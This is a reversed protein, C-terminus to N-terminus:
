AAIAGDEAGCVEEGVRGGDRWDEAEGHAGDAEEALPLEFVVLAGEALDVHGAGAVCIGGNLERVDVFVRRVLVDRMGGVGVDAPFGHAPRAGRADEEAITQPYADERGGALADVARLGFAVGVGEVLDDDVAAAGRVEFVNINKHTASEEGFADCVPHDDRTGRSTGGVRQAASATDYVGEYWAEEKGGDAGAGEGEPGEDERGFGWYGQAEAVLIATAFDFDGDVPLANGRPYADPHFDVDQSLRDLIHSLPFPTTTPHRTNHPSHHAQLLPLLIM